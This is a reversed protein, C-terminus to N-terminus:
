HGETHGEKSEDSREHQSLENAPRMVPQTGYTSTESLHSDNYSVM